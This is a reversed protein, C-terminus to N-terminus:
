SATRIQPSFVAENINDILSEKATIDDITNLIGDQGGSRLESELESTKLVFANGWIDKIDQQGVYKEAVLEDISSPFARNTLYYIKLAHQVRALRISNLDELVAPNAHVAPNFLQSISDVLNKIASIPNFPLVLFIGALIILVIAFALNQKLFDFHKKEQLEEIKDPVDSAVPEILQTTYLSYLAKMTEFEGQHCADIIAQVTKEGDILSYTLEEEKSLTIVESEGASSDDVAEPEDVAEELLTFDSEDEDHKTIIKTQSSLKKKRFILDLSYIKEEIRPWEDVIQVGAMLINEASIPSINEKDYHVMNEQRFHYYGEKWRFLRFLIQNIQDQLAKKLEDQSLVNNKILIYGLRQLTERQLGLAEELQENSIYGRKVLVRGLRDELKKEVSEAGVIKGDLFTVTVTDIESQLTLIGTKRQLGILQFIDALSFDKLTGELAV